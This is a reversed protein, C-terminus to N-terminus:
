RGEGYERKGRLTRGVLTLNGQFKGEWQDDYQVGQQLERAVEQQFMGDLSGM